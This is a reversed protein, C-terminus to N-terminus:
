ADLDEIISGPFVISDDPVTMDNIVNLQSNLAESARKQHQKTRFHIRLGPNRPFAVNCLDCSFIFLIKPFIYM